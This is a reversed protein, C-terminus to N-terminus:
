DYYNLVYYNYNFVKNNIFEKREHNNSDGNIGKRGSIKNNIIFTSDSDSLGRTKKIIKDNTQKKQFINEYDQMNYNKSSDIHSPLQKVM